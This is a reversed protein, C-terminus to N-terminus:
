NVSSTREGIDALHADHKARLRKIHEIAELKDAELIARHEAATLPRDEVEKERTRFSHALGAGADSVEPRKEKTRDRKRRM